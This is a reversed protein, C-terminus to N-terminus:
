LMHQRDHVLFAKIKIVFAVSKANHKRIWALSNPNLTGM